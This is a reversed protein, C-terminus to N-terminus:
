RAPGLPCPPAKKAVCKLLIQRAVRRVLHGFRHISGDSFQFFRLVPENRGCGAANELSTLPLRDLHFRTPPSATVSPNRGPIGSVPSQQELRHTSGFGCRWWPTRGMLW